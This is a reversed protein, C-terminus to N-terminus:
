PGQDDQFIDTAEYGGLRAAALIHAPVHVLLLGVGAAVEEAEFREPFLHLAVLFAADSNWDVLHFAVEGPNQEHSATLSETVLNDIAIPYHTAELNRAREGALERFIAEVKRKVSEHPDSSAM